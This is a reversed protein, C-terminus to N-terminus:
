DLPTGIPPEAPRGQRGPGNGNLRYWNIKRTFIMFFALISFIGLSGILLAYDESQLIIFLFVYCIALIAFIIGSHKWTAFIAKSYLTILLTTSLSGALFALNFHIHESLSLLLLYFICESLGVLLYQFPHIQKKQFIEFLFFAFFPLIIFLIGYKISRTSKMYSNIPTIFDIGFSSSYPDLIYEGEKWESPINRGVSLVRWRAKFGEDGVERTEPLYAGTFKPSAWDSSIEIVTADGLPLFRLTEGGKLHLRFSFTIEQENEKFLPVPSASLAGPFSGTMGRDVHFPFDQEGWRIAVGESLGRMDPFEVIVAAEEWLINEENIHLRSFDPPTFTGDINLDSTYLNVDYMGRSRVETDVTGALELREPLFFTNRKVTEYTTEDIKERSLYPIVLFPGAISQRGGWLTVVEDVAMYRTTEREYILSKIMQLPILFLLSLLIILGLKVPMTYKEKLKM